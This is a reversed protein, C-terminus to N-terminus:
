SFPFFAALNDPRTLEPSENWYAHFLKNQSVTPDVAITNEIRHKIAILESWRPWTTHDHLHQPVHTVQVVHSPKIQTRLPRGQHM